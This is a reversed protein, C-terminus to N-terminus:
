LMIKFSPTNNLYVLDLVSISTMTTLFVHRKFNPQFNHLILTFFFLLNITNYNDNNVIGSYVQIHRYLCSVSFANPGLYALIKFIAFNQIHSAYHAGVAGEKQLPLPCTSGGILNEFLPPSSLVEIKLPPQQSLPLHSKEPPQLKWM